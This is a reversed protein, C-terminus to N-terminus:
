NREGLNMIRKSIDKFLPVAVSSGSGGEEVFVTMAYMPRDAPFYGSFWAHPRVRGNQATGTKGAIPYELEEVGMATGILVVEELLEQLQDNVEEHIIRVGKQHNFKKEISGDPSQIEQVLIPERLIGGNAITAMIKTAMFPSSEIMGQGLAMNFVDLQCTIHDPLSNISYNDSLLFGDKRKESFPSFGFEEALDLVRNGGITGNPNYEVLRMAVQYFVINCSHAFAEKFTIAGHGEGQHCHKMQDDIIITGNCIFEEDLDVVGDELAKAAVITKFVSGLPFSQLAKNNQDELSAMGLVEGRQVDLVVVSLGAATGGRNQRIFKEMEEEIIKQIHYDLTLKINSGQNIHDGSVFYTNRSLSKGRGDKYQMIRIPLGGNLDSDFLKQLGSVGKIGHITNDKYQYQINGIVHKALFDQNLHKSLTLGDETKARGTFPIGNRDVIKGRPYYTKVERSIQHNVRETYERHHIITLSFLRGVLIFMFINIIFGMIYLRGKFM